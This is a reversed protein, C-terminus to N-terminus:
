PILKHESENLMGDHSQPCNQKTLKKVEESEESEAIGDQQLSTLECHVRNERQQQKAIWRCM